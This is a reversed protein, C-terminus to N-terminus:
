ATFRAVAEVPAAPAPQAPTPAPGPPEVEVAGIDCGAQQPRSVWRQDTTIGSAGDTQCSAVPIADILPSGPQPLRTQTPGGNSALSALSPDTGPHTEGAPLNCSPDDTFNFGNSTTTAGSFACNPGGQPLGIVSGFTVISASAKALNAAGGSISTNDVVTAYVLTMDNGSGAVSLGGTNGSNGTVTSNSVTMPRLAEIAGSGQGPKPAQNDSLTSRTITVDGGTSGDRFAAGGGGNTAANDSFTSDTVNLAGGQVNAGGGDIGATNEALRSNTITLTGPNTAIGGGNGTANNGTVVSNTLTVPGAARIGGGNGSANGGTITVNNFTLDGEDIQALVGNNPCTQRITFGHGDLTLVEDSNRVSVGGGGCTLTIDATLDIQNVSSGTWAARFTTEDGAPVAGAPASLVVAGAGAFALTGTLVVGRWAKRRFGGV